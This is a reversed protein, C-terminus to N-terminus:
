QVLFLLPASSLEFIPNLSGREQTYFLYADLIYQLASPIIVM